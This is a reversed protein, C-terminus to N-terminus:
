HIILQSERLQYVQIAQDFPKTAASVVIVASPGGKTLTKIEDVLDPSSKYDIFYDVDLEEICM